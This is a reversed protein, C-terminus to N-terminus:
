ITQNLNGQGVNLTNEKERMDIVHVM